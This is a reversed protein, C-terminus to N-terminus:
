WGYADRMLHYIVNQEIVGRFYQSGPGDAFVPVDEGAHTESGLPIMAEQLYDPDNVIEDTLLPRGNVPPSVEGPKHPFKKAGEPQSDSKGVYGPGNAYSLTTYPRDLLDLTPRSSVRGQNNPGRVLGLIPNGRGPYGSMTLVHSHDATVVILTDRGTMERAVRVADSLAITETLARFANGAHNAHDVRGGEVVLFFGKENKSLIEIAKRTMDELAPDRTEKKKLEAHYNMHEPEFLGFLRRTKEVDVKALQEATWVFEGGANKKRWEEVLNRGDLRAGHQDQYELDKETAPLFHQRGGGLAVDLGDGHPFEILQRAIDPFGAKRAAPTLRSDDDWDREPSNAYCSAPTANTISTTTVVGTSLGRKEATVLLSELEMGPVATYDGRPVRQDVSIMGSGTKVGTIIATMTPASDSVQQNTSYTKSLASHSFTEFSLQNEEGSLGKNQGELIRAATVTTIGMGDGVFLIVNKAPGPEVKQAKIEAVRKRGSELWTDRTEERPKEAACVVPTGFAMAGVLAFTLLRFAPPSFIPNHSFM